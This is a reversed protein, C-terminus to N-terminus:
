IKYNFGILFSYFDLKGSTMQHDPVFIYIFDYAIDNYRISFDIDLNNCISLTSGISFRWAFKTVSESKPKSSVLRYLGPFNVSPEYSDFIYNRTIYHVGLEGAFYPAFLGIPISFKIGALIPVSEFKNDRLHISESWKNFGSSISLQLTDSFLYCIRGEFQYGLPSDILFKPSIAGTGISFRLKNQATSNGVLFLSLIIIVSYKM